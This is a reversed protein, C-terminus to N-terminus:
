GNCSQLIVIKIHLECSTAKFYLSILVLVHFERQWKGLDPHSQSLHTHAETLVVSGELVAPNGQEPCAQAYLVLVSM